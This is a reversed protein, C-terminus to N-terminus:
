PRERLATQVDRAVDELIRDFQTRMDLMTQRMRLIIDVGPLNVGMDEVLLKVLRLKEMEVASFTKETSREGCEPCLIEEEELMDLFREEVQFIEIVETTRWQEKVM